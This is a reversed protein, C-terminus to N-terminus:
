QVGRWAVLVDCPLSLVLCVLLRSPSRLLPVQVYRFSFNFKQLLHPLMRSISGRVQPVAKITFEPSGRTGGSEELIKAVNSHVLDVCWV